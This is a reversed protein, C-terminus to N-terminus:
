AASDFDFDRIQMSEGPVVSGPLSSVVQGEVITVKIDYTEDPPLYAEYKGESDTITRIIVESGKRVTVFAGEITTSGRKVTGSVNPPIRDLEIEIECLAPAEVTACEDAGATPTLYRWTSVSGNIVVVETVAYPSTSKSWNPYSYMTYTGDDLIFRFTGTADTQTGNWYGDAGSIGVWSQQSPLDKDIVTGVVNPLRMQIQVLESASNTPACDRNSTLTADCWLKEGVNEPDDAINFYVAFRGLNALYWPPNIEMRYSGTELLLAFRGNRNTSAGTNSWQWNTGDYKQVSIWSDSVPSNTGNERVLQGILTPAPFSLDIEDQGDTPSCPMAEQSVCRTAVGNSDVSVFAYFVALDSSDWPPRVELRYDGEPMVMSYRGTQDTSSWMDIWNWYGSNDVNDYSIWRQGNIWSGLVPTTGDSNTLLGTVNPIPFHVEWSTEPSLWTSGDDPLGDNDSDISHQGESNVLVDATFTALSGQDSRFRLRYININPSTPVELNLGFNGNLGTRTGLDRWEWYSDGNDNTVKQQVEIWSWRVANGSEGSFPPERLIGKLTPPPPAIQLVGNVVSQTGSLLEIGSVDSVPQDTFVVSNVKLLFKVRSRTGDTKEFDANVHYIGVPLQLSFDGDANPYSYINMWEWCQWNQWINRESVALLVPCDDLESRWRNVNSWAWSVGTMDLHVRVNSLEFRLNLDQGPVCSSGNDRCWTGDDAVTIEQQISSHTGRLDSPSEIRFRYTGPDLELAFRGLANTGTSSNYWGWSDTGTSVEMQLYQNPVVNGESDKLDGSVNGSGLVFDHSSEASWVNTGQCDSLSRAECLDNISGGPIFDDVWITFKKSAVNSSYWEPIRVSLQYKTAGPGDDILRLAFRGQSDISAGNIWNWYNLDANWKSPELWINSIVDGSETKVTGRLNSSELNIDASPATTCTNNPPATDACYTLDSRVLVYLTGPAEGNSVTQPRATLKYIGQELRVAFQGNSSASVGSNGSYEFNGQVNKKQVEIWAPVGADDFLVQGFVNASNMVLDQLTGYEKEEGLCTTAYEGALACLYDIGGRTLTGFYKITTALTSVSTSGPMMYPPEIRVEYRTLTTSGNSPIAFSYKGANNTSTWSYWENTPSYNMDLRRANMNANVVINGQADKVLGRLSPLPLRIDTVCPGCASGNISTVEGGSVVLLITVGTYEGRLDYPPEFKIRWNGDDLGVRFQGSSNTSSYINTWQYMGSIPDQREFRMNANAIFTRSIDGTPPLLTGLFNPSRLRLDLTEKTVWAGNEWVQMTTLEGVQTVKLRLIGAVLQLPNVYPERATVTYTGQPLDLAFRGNSNSNAWSTLPWPTGQEPQINISSNAVTTGGPTKVYGIQTSELFRLNGLDVIGDVPVLEVLNPTTTVCTSLAEPCKWFKTGGETTLIQLRIPRYSAANGTPPMGSNSWGPTLTIFYNGDIKPNLKVSGNEVSYNFIGTRFGQMSTGLQIDVNVRDTAVGCQQGSSPWQCVNAIIKPPDSQFVYSGNVKSKEQSGSCDTSSLTFTTCESVKSLVGQTFEVKFVKSTPVSDVIHGGNEDWYQYPASKIWLYTTASIDIGIRGGDLNRTSVWSPSPMCGTCSTTNSLVLRNVQVNSGLPQGSDDQLAFILQMEPLIVEITGNVLIATGTTAEVATVVQNAVTIRLNASGAESGSSDQITTTWVGNPVGAFLMGNEGSVVNSRCEPSYMMQTCEPAEKLLGMHAFANALENDPTRVVLRVNAEKMALSSNLPTGTFGSGLSYEGSENVSFNAFTEVYGNNSSPCDEESYCYSPTVRLRYSGQALPGLTLIGESNSQYTGQADWFGTNSKELYVSTDPSRGTGTKNTIRAVFSAQSLEFDFRCPALGTCTSIERFDSNTSAVSSNPAIVSVGFFAEINMGSPPGAMCIKYIGDSSTSVSDGRGFSYTTTPPMRYKTATFVKTQVGVGDSTVKGIVNPKQRSACGNYGQSLSPLFDFSVSLPNDAFNVYDSLLNFRSRYEVFLETSNGAMGDTDIAFSRTGNAREIVRGCRAMIMVSANRSSDRICAVLSDQSDRGTIKLTGAVDAVGLTWDIANGTGARVVGGSSGVTGDSGSPPDVMVLYNRDEETCWIVSDEICEAPPEGGFFTDGFGTWENHLLQYPKYDRTNVSYRGQSDTIACGYVASPYLEPDSVEVRAGAIPSGNAGRVVGTLNGSNGNTVECPALQLPNSNSFLDLTMDLRDAPPIAEFDYIQTTSNRFSVQLQYDELNLGATDIAFKRVGGARPTVNGCREVGVQSDRLNMPRLCVTALESAAVGDLNIVGALDAEDLQWDLPSVQPLQLVDGTSGLSIESGVPPDVIFVYDTFPELWLSYNGNSRTLVCGVIRAPETNTLVLVRAGAIPENASNLVRGSVSGSTWSSLPCGQQNIPPFTTVTQTTMSSDDTAPVSEVGVAARPETNLGTASASSMTVVGLLLFGAFLLNLLRTFSKM